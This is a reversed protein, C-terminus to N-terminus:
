IEVQYSVNKNGQFHWEPKKPGFYYGEDRGDLWKSHASMYEANGEAIRQAGAISGAYEQKIEASIIEFRAGHAHVIMGVKFDMINVTQTKANTM